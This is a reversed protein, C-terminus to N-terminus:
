VLFDCISPCTRNKAGIHKFHWFESFWSKQGSGFANIFAKLVCSINNKLTGCHKQAGLFDNEGIKKWIKRQNAMSDAIPTSKTTKSNEVM